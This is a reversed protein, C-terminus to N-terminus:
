YPRTPESIHILSLSLAGGNIHLKHSPTTTGIGVNGNNFWSTGNGRVSFLETGDQKRILLPADGSDVGATVVVGSSNGTNEFWGAWGASSRISRLGGENVDLKFSPSTTGIGVNGSGSPTILIHKNQYGLLQLDSNDVM